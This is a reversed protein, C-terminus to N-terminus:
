QALFGSRELLRRVRTLPLGVIATYDDGRLARFLGIGGAEIKYSGACDLPRDRDVYEAIEADTLSRMQMAYEIQDAFLEAGPAVVAVATILRHTRGSLRSLQARASAADGPKSFRQGDLAIVQDAGVVWAQPHDAAVTRAKLEALRGATQGPTEDGLVSEDVDAASVEFALGLREMLQRKYTSGSALILPRDTM